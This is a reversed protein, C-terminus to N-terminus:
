AGTAQLREMGGDGGGGAVGEMWEDFRHWYHTTHTDKNFKIVFAYRANYLRIPYLAVSVTDLSLCRVLALLLLNDFQGDDDLLGNRM